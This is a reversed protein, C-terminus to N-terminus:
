GLAERVFHEADAVLEARSGEEPEALALIRRADEPWELGLSIGLALWYDAAELLLPHHEEMAEALVEQMSAIVTRAYREWDEAM